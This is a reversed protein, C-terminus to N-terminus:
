LKSAKSEYVCSRMSDVFRWAQQLNPYEKEWDINGTFNPSYVHIIELNPCSDLINKVVVDDATTGALQLRKLNEFKKWQVTKGSFKEEDNHNIISMKEINKCCEGIKNVVKDNDTSLSLNKLYLLNKKSKEWDTDNMNGWNLIIDEWKINECNCVTLVEIKCNKLINKIANTCMGSYFAILAKLNKFNSWDVTKGTFKKCSCIDLKELLPCHKGLEDIISDNVIEITSLSLYTLYGLKKLNINDFINTDCNRILIINIKHKEIINNLTDDVFTKHSINNSDYDFMIGKLEPFKDWYGSNNIKEPNNLAYDVSLNIHSCNHDGEKGTFRRWEPKSNMSVKKKEMCLVANSALLSAVLVLLKIKKNMKERKNRNQILVTM